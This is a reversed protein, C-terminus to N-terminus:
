CRQAGSKQVKAGWRTVQKPRMGGGGGGGICHEGDRPVERRTGQDHWRLRSPDWVVAM